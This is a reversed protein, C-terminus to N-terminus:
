QKINQNTIEQATFPTLCMVIGYNKNLWRKYLLDKKGNKFIWVYVENNITESVIM